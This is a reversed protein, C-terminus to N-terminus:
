APVDTGYRAAKAFAGRTAISGGHHGDGGFAQNQAVEAGVICFLQQGIEPLRACRAKVGFAQGADLIRQLADALAVRAGVAGFQGDAEPGVAGKDAIKKRLLFFVAIM